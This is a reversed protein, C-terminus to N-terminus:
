QPNGGSRIDLALILFRPAFGNFERRYQEGTFAFGQSQWFALDEPANAPVATELRSVGFSAILWRTLIRLILAALAPDSYRDTLLLWGVHALGLLEGSLRCDVMGILENDQIVGFQFRGPMSHAQAIDRAAQQAPAPHGILRTFAAPAAEYVSQLAPADDEALPRLQLDM